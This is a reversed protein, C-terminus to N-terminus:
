KQLNELLNKCFKKIEEAAKPSIILWFNGKIGSKTEEFLSEVILVHDEKSYGMVIIKLIETFPANILVPLSAITLKKLFYGLSNIYSSIIINGVEKILSMGMETFISGKTTDTEPKYCIDILRFANKEQLVFVIKGDIGSLIQSQLSITMGEAIVAEAIGECPIIDIKPVNLKIKRGTIESLATSAHAAATSGVEKLIDMEDHM